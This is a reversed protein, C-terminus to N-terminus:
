GIFDQSLKRSEEVSKLGHDIDAEVLVEFGGQNKVGGSNFNERIRWICHRVEGRKGAMMKPNPVVRSVVSKDILWHVGDKVSYHRLYM